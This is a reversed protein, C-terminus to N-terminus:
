VLPSKIRIIKGKNVIYGMGVIVEENRIYPVDFISQESLKGLIVGNLAEKMYKTLGGYGRLKGNAATTITTIGYSELKMLEVSVEQLDIDEMIETLNDWDDVMIVVNSIQEYFSKSTLMPNKMRMELYQSERETIVKKIEEYFSLIANKDNIYTVNEQDRYVMLESEKLEFLYIPINKSINHLLIKLMNTKGTQASGIILQKYVNLNIYQPIVEETELGIPVLNDPMVGCYGQFAAISLEEPLMPISKPSRGTYMESIKCIYEKITDTYFVLDSVDAVTYMQIQNVNELKVLGRGKIEALPYQTRGIAAQIDATEFMFLIIKNKLNNQVTYRVAGFRTAAIVVYIGLSVGDRTFQTLVSELEVELERIVDYNDIFLFIAPLKEEAVQNYMVFNVASKDAFLRKRKKIENQLIKILKQLKGMDDLSIYDATHPLDKFQILGSNGFDLIYYHLQEASNKISMELIITSLSFTKGFGSSGYVALNGDESFDIKYEIQEQQEPIDVLGLTVRLDLESMQKVDTIYKKDIYPSILMTGLPPLWPSKVKSVKEKEFVDYIHTVVVDLQTAKIQNGETSRSLDQNILEGQGLDNVLYVRDDVIEDEMDADYTAGSWASQFLEYIENNGVQLYARGPQTIFAADPTKIIEKSDSENQVKLALKFKSNTWIQDDVVGSPKQTALILHIGLSRGIRAASVLESMFEPQEKKLEAFEDSILFLHPIPETAKGMKFLKNYANIHNVNYNIFIKQRRALESKISALARMSESGDLNTITGLLHPLNKFLNAMGGGKYDILLFGVEYPHFNVALSLIYSQIIESKGSGTTGAVLGHPGHAKEHLNLFVYDEKARVGLPVALSKHSENKQWRQKIQLQEPREVQYMDFFTVSEPIQSVIGQEHKLVSLDRAMKELDVDGVHSLRLKENIMEKNSLLLCGDSSNEVIFVTGIYEPLDAQFYSTYIISFGLKNGDKDLYEMISHDMIMKPEDIIFVYHPLFRNEKKGEDLKDKREKLIQTLSGLVQDRMKESNVCGSVNLENLRLHPYWRMWRFDDDYKSDYIIIIEVDHYSHFFTLQSVLLKLQEHVNKKEGVLGLNAKKLDALISKKPLVIGEDKIEKAEIMLNDKDMSLEDYDLEIPFSVLKENHGLVVQLFDEDNCNREYIRSSHHRVMDYIKDVDPFNYSDAEIEQERREYIEKRMKLLYKQYMEDRIVNSRKCEKQDCLFKVVSIIVTMITGAASMLVYSGRKMFVSICITVLLMCLPPVVLQIISGKQMRKKQPPKSFKIAENNTRKILRPSRRYRINEKYAESVNLQVNDM